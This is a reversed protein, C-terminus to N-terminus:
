REMTIALEPCAAMGRRALEEMGAPVDLAGVNSYGDDDLTYLDPAATACLAHGTCKSRDVRIRM